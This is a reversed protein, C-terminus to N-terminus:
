ENARIPYGTVEWDEGCSKIEIDDLPLAENMREIGHGGIAPIASRGGIIKPAYFFTVKDALREDIISGAVEAGGEVVVSTLQRRGLAELIERLDLRGDIAAVEIV